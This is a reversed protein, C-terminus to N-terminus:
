HPRRAFEVGELNACRFESLDGAVRQRSRQPLFEFASTSQGYAFESAHPAWFLPFIEALNGAGVGGVCPADFFCTWVARHRMRGGDEAEREGAEYDAM